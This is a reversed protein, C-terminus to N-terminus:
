LKRRLRAVPIALQERYKTITRRALPLGKLTMQKAILDDSLPHTKDEREILRKIMQKAEKNSIDEGNSQQVKSSFFYKLPFTGHQTQVYKGHVARSVTSEDLHVIEAINRNTLPRLNEGTEFFEPQKSIIANMIDLLTTHRQQISQIFTKAADFRQKIFDKAEQSIQATQHTMMEIYRKNIRINPLYTNTAEVLLEDNNQKVIFDPIITLQESNATSEGPKPNLKRILQEANKFEDPTTKLKEIVKELRKNIFDDYCFELINRALEERKLEFQGGDLQALLCERLNRSAIGPPDLHQIEHLVHEAKEKTIINNVEALIDDLPIRLYGDDDLNGIVEKGFIKEEDSLELLQLQEILQSYLPLREEAPFDEKDENNDWHESSKYGENEDNLLHEFSFDDETTKEENDSSESELTDDSSQEEQTEEENDGEELFPNFELEQKICQELSLLPQQLLKLYQIQQPSLKQELRQRLEQYLM